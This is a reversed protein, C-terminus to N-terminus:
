IVRGSPGPVRPQRGNQFFLIFDIFNMRLFFESIKKQSTDFLALSSIILFIDSSILYLNIKNDLQKKTLKSWDFALARSGVHLVIAM